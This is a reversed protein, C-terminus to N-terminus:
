KEKSADQLFAELSRHPVPGSYSLVLEDRDSLLSTSSSNQYNGNIAIIWFKNKSPNYCVAGICRIDTTRCCVLGNKVKYLAGIAENVTFGQPISVSKKISIKNDPIKIEVSVQILQIGSKSKGGVDWSSITKSKGLIAQSQNLGAETAGAVNASLLIGVLILGRM